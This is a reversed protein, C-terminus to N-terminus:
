KQSQIIEIKKIKNNILRFEVQVKTKQMQSSYIRIKNKNSKM